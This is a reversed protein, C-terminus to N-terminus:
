TQASGTLHKDPVTIIPILHHILIMNLPIIIIEPTYVMLLFDLRRLVCSFPSTGGGAGALKYSIIAMKSSRTCNTSSFALTALPYTGGGTETTLSDCTCAGAIAGRTLSACLSGSLSRKLFCCAGINSPLVVGSFAFCHNSRKDEM